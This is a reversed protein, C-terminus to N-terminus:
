SQYLHRARHINSGMEALRARLTTCRSPVARSTEFSVETNVRFGGQMGWRGTHECDSLKGDADFYASYFQDGVRMKHAAFSGGPSFRVQMARHVGM